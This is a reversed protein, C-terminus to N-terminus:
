VHNKIYLSLMQSIHKMESANVGLFPRAPINKKRGGFQHVAAYKLNSGVVASDHNAKFNISRRLTGTDTLIKRKGKKKSPHKLPKWKEGSPSQEKNFRENVTQKKIYSGVLQWFPTLDRLNNSMLNLKNRINELGQIQTKIVM